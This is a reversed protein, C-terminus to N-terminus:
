MVQAKDEQIESLKVPDALGWMTLLVNVKSLDTSYLHAFMPKSLSHVAIQALIEVFSGYSLAGINSKRNVSTYLDRIEKRSIFTPTVDYDQALQIIDSLQMANTGGLQKYFEYVRSLVVAHKDFLDIMQKNLLPMDRQQQQQQQQKKSEFSNDLKINTRGSPIARQPDNERGPAMSSPRRRQPRLHSTGGAASSADDYGGGHPRSTQRAQEVLHESDAQVSKRLSAMQRVKEDLLQRSEDIERRAKLLDAKEQEIERVREELSEKVLPAEDEHPSWPGDMYYKSAPASGTYNQSSPPPPAFPHFAGNGDDGASNSMPTMTQQDASAFMPFYSSSPVYSGSASSVSSQYQPQQYQQQQYHQQQPHQQFQPQLNDISNGFSSGSFAQDVPTINPQQMKKAGSSMEITGSNAGTQVHSSPTGSPDKTEDNKEDDDAMAPVISRETETGNGLALTRQSNDEPAGPLRLLGSEKLMKSFTIFPNVGNQMASGSDGRERLLKNFESATYAAAIDEASLSAALGPRFPSGQINRWPDIQSRGDNLRVRIEASVEEGNVQKQLLADRTMEVTYIIRVTGDDNKKVEKLQLPAELEIYFEQDEDLAVSEDFENRPVITFENTQDIVACLLGLGDATCHSTAVPAPLIRPHFPSGYIDYGDLMITLEYEGLRAPVYECSFTGDQNDTVHLDYHLDESELVVTPMKNVFEIPDGLEDRAQITFHSPVAIRGEHLGRGFASWNQAEDWRRTAEEPDIDGAVSPDRVSPNSMFHDERAQELLALKMVWESAEEPSSAAFEYRRMQRMHDRPDREILHFENEWRIASNKHKRQPVPYEVTTYRLNIEGKFARRDNPKYYFLKVTRRDMRFYRRNWNKRFEGRKWLEGDILCEEPIKFKPRGKRGLKKPRRAKQEEEGEGEERARQLEVTQNVEMDMEELQMRLEDFDQNFEFDDYGLDETPDVGDQYLDPRASATFRRQRSSAKKWEVPIPDEEEEEEAGNAKGRGPGRRSGPRGSVGRVSAPRNGFSGGGPSAARRLASEDLYLGGSNHHNNAGNFANGAQAARPSGNAPRASAFARPDGASRRNANTNSNGASAFKPPLQQPPPSRPSQFGRGSGGQSRPSAGQFAQQPPPPSNPGEGGGFGGGSGANGDRGASQRKFKGKFFSM